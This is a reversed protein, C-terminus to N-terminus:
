RLNPGALRDVRSESKGRSRTVCQAIGTPDTIGDNFTSCDHRDSYRDVIAERADCLFDAVAANPESHREALILDVAELLPM